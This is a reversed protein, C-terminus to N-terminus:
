RFGVRRMDDLFRGVEPCCTHRVLQYAMARGSGSRRHLPDTTGGAGATGDKSPAGAAEAGCADAARAVQLVQRTQSYDQIYPMM